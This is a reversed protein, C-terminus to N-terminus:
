RPAVPRGDRLRMWSWFAATSVAAGVWVLVSDVSVFIAWYGTGLEGNVASALAGVIVSALPLGVARAKPPLRSFVGGILFGAVLPLFEGM